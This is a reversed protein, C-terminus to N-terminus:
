RLSFTQRKVKEGEISLSIKVDFLNALAEKLLFQNTVLLSGLQSMDKTAEQHKSSKISVAAKQALNQLKQLLAASKTKITEVCRTKDYFSNQDNRASPCFETINDDSITGQIAKELKNVLGRNDSKLFNILEFLDYETFSIDFSIRFHGLDSDQFNLKNLERFGTQIFLERLKSKVVRAKVEDKEYHWKYNAAYFLDRHDGHLENIFTTSFQDIEKKHNSFIGKTNKEKSVISTLVKEDFNNGKALSFSQMKYKSIGSGFIFPLNFSLSQGAGKLEGSSNIVNTALSTDQTLKQITRLDGKYFSKLADIALPSNMNLNFSMGKEAAKLKEAALSMFTGDVEIGISKTEISAISVHLTEDDKKQLKLAWTGSASAIVGGHIIPDIGFGFNFIISGNSNFSLKENKRWHSFEKFSGPLKLSRNSESKNNIHIESYSTQNKSYVLGMGVGFPELALHRGLELGAGLVLKSNKVLLYGSTGDSKQASLNNNEKTEDKSILRNVYDGGFVLVPAIHFKSHNTSEEAEHEESEHGESEHDETDSEEHEAHENSESFPNEYGFLIEGSPEIRVPLHLHIGSALDDEISIKGGGHTGHGFAVNNILILSLVVLMKKM